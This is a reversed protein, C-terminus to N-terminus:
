RAEGGREGVVLDAVRGVLNLWRGDVVRDIAHEDSAADVHHRPSGSRRSRSRWPRQPLMDDM